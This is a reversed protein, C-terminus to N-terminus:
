EIYSYNDVFKDNESRIFIVSKKYEPNKLKLKKYSSMDWPWLYLSKHNSIPYMIKTFERSYKFKAMLNIWNSISRNLPECFKELEIKVISFIKPNMIYDSNSYSNRNVYIEKQEDHEEYFSTKWKFTSNRNKIHCICCFVGNKINTFEIYPKNPNQESDFNKILKSNKWIHVHLSDPDYYPGSETTSTTYLKKDPGNGRQKTEIKTLADISCRKPNYFNNWEEKESFIHNRYEEISIKETM